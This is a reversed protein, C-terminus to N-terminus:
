VPRRKEEWIANVGEGREKVVEIVENLRFGGRTAWMSGFEQEGDKFKIRLLKPNPCFAWIIAKRTVPSAPAGTEHLEKNGQRVSPQPEGASGHAAGALPESPAIDGCSALEPPKAEERVVPGAERAGDSLSGIIEVLDAAVFEEAQKRAEVYPMQAVSVASTPGSPVGTFPPFPLGNKACFAKAEDYRGHRCLRAAFLKQGHIRRAESVPTALIVDLPIKRRKERM